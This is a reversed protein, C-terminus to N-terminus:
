NSCTALTGRMPTFREQRSHPRQTNYWNLYDAIDARATSVSDTMLHSENDRLPRLARYTSAKVIRMPDYPMPDYPM